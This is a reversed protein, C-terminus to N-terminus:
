HKEKIRIFWNNYPGYITYCILLFEHNSIDLPERLYPIIIILIFQM